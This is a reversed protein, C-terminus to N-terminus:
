GHPHPDVTKVRGNLRPHADTPFSPLSLQLLEPIVVRTVTLGLEQIDPTTLDFGIPTVGHSELIDLVHALEAKPSSFGSFNEIRDISRLPGDLLFELADYNDPSQYYIVNSTLDTINQPDIGGLDGSSHTTHWSWCQSAEWIASRIAEPYTSDSAACFFAYPRSREASIGLCGVTPINVGTELNLLHFRVTENETVFQDTELRDPVTRTWWTYMVSDREVFEYISELLSQPLTKHCAMGNTTAMFLPRENVGKHPFVLEIPVYTRDGSLLNRGCIWSRTEFKDLPYYTEYHDLQERTRESYFQLYETDIVEHEASLEEYSAEVGRHAGIYYVGREVAEALMTTISQRLTAGKGMAEISAGSAEDNTLNGIDVTQGQATKVEIPQRRYPLTYELDSVLGTKKGLIRALPVTVDGDTEHKIM